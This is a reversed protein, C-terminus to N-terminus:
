VMRERLVDVHIVANNIYTKSIDYVGASFACNFRLDMVHADIRGRPRELRLYGIVLRLKGLYSPAGIRTHSAPLRM